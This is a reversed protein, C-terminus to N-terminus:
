KNERFLAVAKEIGKELAPRMFPRPPVREGTIKGFLMKIHGFEVLHAHVGTEENKGTAVIIYGGDEFKSKKLKISRRLRGSKDKFAATSKAEKQVFHAVEELNSNIADTVTSLQEDFGEIDRVTVDAKIM